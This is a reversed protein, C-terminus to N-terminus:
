DTGLLVSEAGKDAIAARIKSVEDPVEEFLSSLDELMPPRQPIIGPVGAERTLLRDVATDTRAREEKIATELKTMQAKLEEVLDQLLTIELQLKEVTLLHVKTSMFMGM